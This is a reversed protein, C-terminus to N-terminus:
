DCAYTHKPGAVAHANPCKHTYVMKVDKHVSEYECHVYNGMGKSGTLDLTIKVPNTEPMGEPPPFQSADLGVTSWVTAKCARAKANPLKLGGAYASNGGQVPRAIGTATVALQIEKSNNGENAEAVLHTSDVMCRVTHTGANAHWQTSTTIGTSSVGMTAPGTPKGDVYIQGVMDNNFNVNEGAKSTSSWVCTIFIDQGSVPTSGKSSDDAPRWGITRVFYDLSFAPACALWSVVLLGIRKM